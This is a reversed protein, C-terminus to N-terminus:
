AGGEDGGPVPAGADTAFVTPAAAAGHRCFQCETPVEPSRDDMYRAYDDCSSANLARLCILGDERLPKCTDPFNVDPPVGGDCAKQCRDSALTCSTCHKCDINKRAAGFQAVELSQATVGCGGTDGPTPAMLFAIAVFALAGLMWGKAGEVRARSCANM